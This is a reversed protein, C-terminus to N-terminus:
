DKVLAEAGYAQVWGTIGGSLSAVQASSWGNEILYGAAGLSTNGHWCQFIIDTDKPLEHARMPIEQIFMHIAGPIHGSEYEWAQRMDVVIFDQDGNNLRARLEQPSIEKIQIPAPEPEPAPMPSAPNATAKEQEKGGFIKKLLSM